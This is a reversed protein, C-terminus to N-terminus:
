VAYIGNEPLLDKLTYWRHYTAAQHFKYCNGIHNPPKKNQFDDKEENWKDGNYEVTDGDIEKILDKWDQVRLDKKAENALINKIKDIPLDKIDPNKYINESAKVLKTHLKELGELFTKQNNRTKSEIEDGYRTNEYKFKWTLYPRDPYTYVAGHGLGRSFNEGLISKIKTEKSSFFNVVISKIKTTKSSFSNINTSSFFNVFSYIEKKLKNSFIKQKKLVYEKIKEDKISLNISNEDVENLSSCIGSFGYHSFTDMYVHASIGLIHLYFNKNTLNLHNDFMKNVLDSDKLCLLKEELTEGKGGPYFHFPVWVLRHVEPHFFSTFTADANHHATKISFLMELNDNKKSNNSTADDVFQASTAIVNADEKKFGAFRAIAYTSYFHMDIQM